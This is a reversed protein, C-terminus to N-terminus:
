LLPPALALSPALLLPDAASLAAPQRCAPLSVPRCGRIGARRRRRGLWGCGRRGAGAGLSLALVEPALLGQVRRRPAGQSRRLAQAAPQQPLRVAPVPGDAGGGPRPLAGRRARRAAHRAPHRVQRPRTLAPAPSPPHPPPPHPSPCPPTRAATAPGGRCRRPPPQGAAAPTSRHWGAGGPGERGWPQTAAATRAAVWRARGQLGAALARGGTSSRPSAWCAM